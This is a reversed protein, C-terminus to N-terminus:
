CGRGSHVCCVVTSTTGTVSRLWDVPGAHWSSAPAEMARPVDKSSRHQPQDNLQPCPASSCRLIALGRRHRALADSFGRSRSHRRRRGDPLPLRRRPHPIRSSAFVFGCPVPCSTRIDGPLSRSSSSALPADRGGGALDHSKWKWAQDLAVRFIGISVGGYVIWFLDIVAVKFAAM